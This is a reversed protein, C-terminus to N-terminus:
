QFRDGSNSKDQGLYGRVSAMFQDIKLPKTLYEAFGAAMGREVDRPMANATIAVVPIYKLRADAKLVRLVDYGDMGPMNIDLLIMEPRHELALDIGLSPTHATLLHVNPVHWLIQSVLRLNAPNDEIYLVTQCGKAVPRSSAAGAPEPMDPASHAAAITELPLEITFCTGEGEKSEVAVTGGMLEVIRRTITLGIGTGEIAGNKAGLRNFPQFLEPIQSAPIGSGTDAVRLCLREAETPKVSVHVTGGDRNYKIANSLLNLLAQKLRIRDARVAAGALREHGLVIGRQAALPTVLAICEDVVAVLEVPELSLDIHGSEVKALDLVENILDLLHRGAKLIEKANDQHDPSLDDAYAMLQGFGLIANLPTRLEHSMSSLFESKALNARDAAERAAVLAQEFVVRETVDQITGTLRLPKGTDDLQMQALEHVHRVEGDPRVIRHVVDHRGTKEAQYVDARVLELDDPHVAAYFAQESPAFSGPERGFIRYIEDSWVLEGLDLNATWNGISALRQAELLQRGREALALETNKRDTIDQVVGIMKLPQNSADRQVAGRELLWRVTGDPWVVRHEIEFPVDREICAEVADTVAQRDNPHVAAFFNLYFINLTGAPYGFMPAIRETWYIENTPLNWEWTGINAFVQGLRLREEAFQAAQEALRRETIDHSIGLLYQPKGTEDRLALKCTHLIRIGSPTTIEEEAIDVVGSQALVARDKATFSAAQESPFFDYDNRGILAERSLGILDEGARNFYTFSLDKAEKLFIMTPVNELVSELWQNAEKLQREARTKDTIDHFSWVRGAVQGERLLPNSYRRFIRGDKLEILDDSEESTQYIAQAHAMVEEPDALQALAYALLQSRSATDALAEPMGWMHRFQRNMFLVQGDANVALIGDNTSQLTANLQDAIKAVRLENLKRDTTRFHAVVVGGPTGILPSVRMEFWDLQLTSHLPYEHSFFPQSGSMVAAIGQAAGRADSKEGSNADGSSSCDHASGGCAKLYNTGVVAGPTPQGADSASELAFRQWNENVSIIVGQSDLVAISADVSDLISKAFERQRKLEWESASRKLASTLQDAFLSLLELFDQQWPHAHTMQDFGVFGVTRGNQRLPFACLARIGQIELLAKETASDTPMVSVDPINIMAGHQMQAWWWDFAEVPLNQLRDKQPAAHPACWEHSNSMYAGDTDHQFLYARDAQLYAAANHLCQLITADMTEVDCSLLANALKSVLQQMENQSRLAIEAAKLASIDTRISVYGEPLGGDGLVPSITAAVWYLSGDKHRNCVEGQWVRGATITQWMDDYFSAPHEGSKVTNHSKGLLEERGYGSIECFKDNVYNITGDADSISVIAHDNLAVCRQYLEASTSQQRHQLITPAARETSLLKERRARRATSAILQVMQDPQVHQGLVDDGDLVLASSYGEDPAQGPLIVIPLQRSAEHERLVKARELASSKAMSDGFVLLDPSFSDVHDMISSALPLTLVDMGFGSLLAVHTALRKADEDVMLVRCPVTPGCVSPEGVDIALVATQVPKVQYHCVDAQPARLGDDSGLHM